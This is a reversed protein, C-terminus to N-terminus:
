TIFLKPIKEYFKPIKEYFKTRLTDLSGGNYKIL